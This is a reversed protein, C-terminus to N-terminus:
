ASLYAEITREIKCDNAAYLENFKRLRKKESDYIVALEPSVENRVVKSFDSGMIILQETYRVKDGPFAPKTKNLISLLMAM